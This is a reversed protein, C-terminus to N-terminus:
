ASPAPPPRTPPPFPTNAGGAGGSTGASRRVPTSCRSTRGSNARTIRAPVPVPAGHDGDAERAAPPLANLQRGHDQRLRRHAAPPVDGARVAVPWLRAAPGATGVDDNAPRLDVVRPGLPGVVWVKKKM